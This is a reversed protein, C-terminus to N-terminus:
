SLVPSFTCFLVFCRWEKTSVGGWPRYDKMYLRFSISVVMGVAAQKAKAGVKVAVNPMRGTHWTPVCALSRM